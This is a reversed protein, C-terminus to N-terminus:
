VVCDGQTLRNLILVNFFSLLNFLQARSTSYHLFDIRDNPKLINMGILTTTSRRLIKLNDRPYIDVNDITVTREVDLGTGVFCLYFGDIQITAM